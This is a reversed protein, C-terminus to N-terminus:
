PLHLYPQVFMGEVPKAPEVAIRPRRHRGHWIETLGTVMDVQARVAAPMHLTGAARVTSRGSWSQTYNHFPCDFISSVTGAAASVVITDATEEFVLQDNWNKLWGKVVSFSKSTAFVQRTIPM